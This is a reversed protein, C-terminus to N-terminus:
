DEQKAMVGILKVVDPEIELRLQVGRDISSAELKVHDQGSMKELAEAVKAAREREPAHQGVAEIFKAIPGVAVSVKMPALKEAGDASREIAGRLAKMADRGASVYVSQKGVGVVIELPQGILKVANDRDPADQPVPISVTHLNVGKCKGADLKLM